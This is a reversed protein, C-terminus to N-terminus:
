VIIWKKPYFMYRNKINPNSLNYIKPAVVKAKPNNNLFAAWWGFSSAHSMINHDCESILCFDEFSSQPDLFIYEEGKFNKRVWNIDQDYKSDIRAGGTFILFKVKKNKFLSKAKIFYKGYFSNKDFDDNKGYSMLLSPANNRIKLDQNDGRRLHLSIIQYKPLKEKIKRIKNKAEYIYKGKPTLEKKIIDISDKFYYISQFYGEIDTGDQIQYFNKSVFLPNKEIYKKQTLFHYFKAKGFFKKPISFNKLLNKQNHYTFKDVNLFGIQHNLKLGISRLAAYQFLQNGLRGLKGLKLFTIM